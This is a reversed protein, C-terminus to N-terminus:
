QKLKVVGGTMGPAFAVTGYSVYLAGDPGKAIGFPTILGEALSVPAASADKTDFSIVSGPGPGQETIKALQVAYLTDGDLLIDIVTDLNAYTNVLKGDSWHEIKGAGPALGAGLFGVYLDGNAAVEVSTPVSNEKWTAVVALGKEATWSYLSNAGADSIYLTGDSGWALDTVNSDIENGDPNNAVEFPYPTIINKLMLTKADLEVVSDAWYQGPGSSSVVLWLSDGHPIARYVGTTEQESAYSPLGQILPTAKGDKGISLVQGSMGVKYATEGEPGKSTMTQEGGNGTVTVLLNGDADFAIGRPTPLDGIVLDGPLPPMEMAPPQGQADGTAEPTADQAMTRSAAYPMAVFLTAALVATTGMKLLTHKKM